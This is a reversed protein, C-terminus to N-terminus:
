GTTTDVCRRPQTPWSSTTARRAAASSWRRTSTSAGAGRHGRRAAGDLLEGRGCGLDLVWDCGAFMKVYREQAPVSTRSTAASSTRSAATATADLSPTASAWCAAGPSTSTPSRPTRPPPGPGSARSCGRSRTATASAVGSQGFVRDFRQGARGLRRLEAQSDVVQDRLRTSSSACRAGVFGTSSTRTTRTRGCRRSCRAGRRARRAAPRSPTRRPTSRRRSPPRRWTPTRCAPSPASADPVAARRRSLGSLRRLRTRALEGVADLASTATRRGGGASPARPAGRPGGLGAAHARRRPRPRARGLHGDRRTTSPTAARGRDADYDVLYSNAPTMFDINGSYGTAIVPKGLAM